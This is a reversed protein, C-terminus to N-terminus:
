ALFERVVVAVLQIILGWLGAMTTCLITTPIDKTRLIPVAKLLWSRLLTEAQHMPPHRLPMASASLSPIMTSSGIGGLTDYLATPLIHGQHAPGVVTSKRSYM